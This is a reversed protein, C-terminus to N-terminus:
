SRHASKERAISLLALSLPLLSFWLYSEVAFAGLLFCFATLLYYKIKAPDLIIDAAESASLGEFRRKKKKEPRVPLANRTYLYKHVRRKEPFRFEVNLIATLQLVYRTRRRTLIYVENLGEKVAYRYAAAIDERTLDLFKYLCAVVVNKKGDSAIFYPAESKVRRDEPLTLYILETQAHAGKLALLDCMEQCSITKMRRVGAAKMVAALMVVSVGAIALSVDYPLFKAALLFVAAAFILSSVVKDIVSAM